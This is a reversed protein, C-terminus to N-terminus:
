IGNLDARLQLDFFHRCRTILPLIDSSCLALLDNGALFFRLWSCITAMAMRAAEPPLFFFYNKIKMKM